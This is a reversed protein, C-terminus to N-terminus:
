RYGLNNSGINNNESGLSDMYTRLTGSSGVVSQIDLLSAAIIDLKQALIENDSKKGISVGSSNRGVTSGSGSSQQKEFEKVINTFVGAKEELKDLMDGFLEADMLSLLALNGTLSRFSNMKDIDINNIAGGFKTLSDSLKGYSTSLKSIGDAMRTIPDKGGSLISDVVGTIGSGFRSTIKRALASFQSLALVTNKAWNTPIVKTYDGTNLIRAASVISTSISTIGRSLDSISVGSSFWGSDAALIKYIPAFAALAQGVGEAWEKKPGGSFSVRAGPANFFNAADVIGGSVVRIANAFDKPGLGGGGFIKFISNAMLMGYVPSFAGIALAVGESWEKTPGGTFNGRRLIDASAVITSAILLTGAAGAGLALLGLGFSGLIITGLALTSLGFATMSLGVGTAWGLSPYIDYKGLGLIYSTAVITGAVMLAAIGGFLMGLLSAPGGLGLLFMGGGFAVMALSVDLVWSLPPYTDYKGFSLIWSSAMIATAVIVMSLGGMLLSKIGIKELIKISPSLVLVIGALIAGLVLMKLMFGIELPKGLSLVWSSLAISLAIAPLIIPLSLATLAIEKPSKNGFASIMSNLSFAIITFAAAIFLTTFFQALGIPKVMQLVWSSAAIGLAIAPLIIPLSLSAIAIEKVSKGKFASLMGSLGYGIIAFSSSIFLTTFFQALGIPKVTSLIWSSAAIGISISVMALVFNIGDKPTFGAKKLVTHVNGFAISLLVIATSIAIVSFFNVGGVIKFAVGLALIAVAMLMIVGLGEKIFKQKNKDQGIQSALDDKSGKKSMSLITQQNSLIKKTDSKIEKIGESIKSIQDVFNGGKIAQATASKPDKKSALIEGIKELSTSLNDLASLLKKDM